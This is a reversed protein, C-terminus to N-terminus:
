PFLRPVFERVVNFGVAVSLSTGFSAAGSAFTRYGEPQWMRSLTAAAAFAALRSFSFHRSGDDHRALLTSKAAYAARAAAGSQGSRFYRNDEHLAGSLGFMLTEREFHETWASAFRKDFGEGGEGWAKPRDRWQGVGAAMSAAVVSTTSLTDRLYRHLRQQPTMPAFPAALTQAKSPSNPIAVRDATNTQALM